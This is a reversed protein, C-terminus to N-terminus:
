FNVSKRKSKKRKQNRDQLDLFLIMQTDYMAYDETIRYDTVFTRISYGKPEKSMGKNVNTIHEKM